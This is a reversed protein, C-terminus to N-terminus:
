PFSLSSKLEKNLYFKSIAISAAGLASSYKGLVSFKINTNEQHYHSLREQLVHNIPNEIWNSFQSIRNGIVVMNPNFTNIVNTLGVGIYEGLTHLLQLVNSNGMKAAEILSELTINGNNKLVNQKNANQLHANESAYLEWCAQNGCRCKQGNAEITFHGMEGSIGSTGTYLNNHIIIGTGIGVSISIYILNPINKGAGYLHEGHAGCNAENQVR